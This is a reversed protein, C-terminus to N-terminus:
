FASFCPPVGFVTRFSVFNVMSKGVLESDKDLDDDGIGLMFAPPTMSAAGSGRGSVDALLTSQRTLSSYIHFNTVMFLYVLFYRMEYTSLPGRTPLLLNLTAEEIVISLRLEFVSEQLM